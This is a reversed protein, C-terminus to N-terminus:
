RPDIPFPSAPQPQFRSFRLDVLASVGVLQKRVKDLAKKKVPLGHTDILTELADIEAHLQREVETSRQRTSDCVRWPHVILAM